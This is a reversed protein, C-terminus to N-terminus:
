IKDGFIYDVDLERNTAGVSKNHLIYLGMAEGTGNPINATGTITGVLVGDIYFLALDGAPNVEIYMDYFTNAVVTVGTDITQMIAGAKKSLIQWKGSNVGHSYKFHLCDTGDATQSDNYGFWDTFTNSADSLTPIRVAANVWFGFTGGFSFISANGGSTGLGFRHRGAASVNAVDTNLTVIGLRGAVSKAYTASGSTGGNNGSFPLQDNADSTIFDTGFGYGSSKKFQTSYWAVQVWQSATSNWILHLPEGVVMQIEQNKLTKINGSTGIKFAGTPFIFLFTTQEPAEITNVTAVGSIELVNGSSGDLNITSASPVTVRHTYIQRNGDFGVYGSAANKRSDNEISTWITGNYIQLIGATSNYLISGATVGTLADIQVQTLAPFKVYNSISTSKNTTTTLIEFEPM